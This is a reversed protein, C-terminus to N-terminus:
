YPHYWHSHLCLSPPPTLSSLNLTCASPHSHDPPTPPPTPLPTATLHLCSFPLHFTTNIILLLPFLTPQPYQTTPPIPSLLQLYFVDNGVHYTLHNAQSIGFYSPKVSQNLNGLRFSISTPTRNSPSPPSCACTLSRLLGSLFPRPVQHM